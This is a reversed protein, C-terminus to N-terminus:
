VASAIMAPSKSIRASSVVLATLDCSECSTVARYVCSVTAHGLRALEGMLLPM